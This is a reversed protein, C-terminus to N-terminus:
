ITFEPMRIPSRLITKDAVARLVSPVHALLFPDESATLDQKHLEKVIDTCFEEILEVKKDNMNLIQAPAMKVDKEDENNEWAAYQTGLEQLEELMTIGEPFVSATRLGAFAWKYYPMYKRNLLYILSLGSRIFESICLNATFVDGRSMCRAYNVQGTQALYILDRALKKLRINEPYYGQFFLRIKSFEGSPDLFVEGNVVAALANENLYLWDVETRPIYNQGLFGAYFDDISFVGSRCVGGSGPGKLVPFNLFVTGLSDYAEQMSAGYQEYDDQSLWIFFRAGFDHDRSIEDDFGFCESGEGVLGAAYHDKLDPFRQEIVPRGVKEFFAKSLELGKMLLHPIAQQNGSKAM